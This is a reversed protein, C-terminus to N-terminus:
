TKNSLYKGFILLSEGLSYFDKIETLITFENRFYFGRTAEYSEKSSTEALIWRGNQERVLQEAHKILSKGIGKGSADPDVVIWYLDYVADTLPRKGICHYGLVKEEDEYVFIIYDKQQPFNIVIDILELAVNIDGQNFNKIKSLINVISERDSLKLKRIM